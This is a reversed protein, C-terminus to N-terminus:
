TASVFPLTTCSNVSGAFNVGPVSFRNLSRVGAVFVFGFYTTHRRASM